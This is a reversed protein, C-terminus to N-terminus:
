INAIEVADEPKALYLTPSIKDSGLKSDISFDLEMGKELDLDLVGTFIDLFEDVSIPNLKQHPIIKQVSIAEPSIM